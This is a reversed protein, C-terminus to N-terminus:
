AIQTTDMWMVCLNVHFVMSIIIYDCSMAKKVGATLGLISVAKDKVCKWSLSENVQDCCLDKMDGENEVSPM